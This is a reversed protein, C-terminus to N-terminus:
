SEDWVGFFEVDTPFRVLGKTSPYSFDYEDLNFTTQLNLDSSTSAANVSGSEQAEVSLVSEVQEQAAVGKDQVAATEEPQEADEKEAEEEAAQETAAANGVVIEGGSMVLEEVADRLQQPNEEATDQALAAMPVLYIAMCLLIALVRKKMM